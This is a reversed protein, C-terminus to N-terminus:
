MTWCVPPPNVFFMLLRRRCDYNQNMLINLSEKCYFLVTVCVPLAHYCCKCGKIISSFCVSLLISSLRSLLREWFRTWQVEQIDKTLYRATERISSSGHMPFFASFFAVWTLPRSHDHATTLPRSHDLTTTLPRSRDHTTTLPRSRDHTTKLPRSRDHTTTLLRSHDQATTLPRSRARENTKHGIRKWPNELLLSVALPRNKCCKNM